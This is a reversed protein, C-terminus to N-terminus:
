RGSKSADTVSPTDASSSSVAATKTACLASWLRVHKSSYVHEDRKKASDRKSQRKSEM